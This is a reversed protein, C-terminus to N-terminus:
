SDDGCVVRRHTAQEQAQAPAESGQLKTKLDRFKNKTRENLKGEREIAGDVTAMRGQQDLEAFRKAAMSQILPRLQEETLM